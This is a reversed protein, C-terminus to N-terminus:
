DDLAYRGSFWKGAAPSPSTLGANANYNFGMYAHGAQGGEAVTAGEGSRPQRQLVFAAVSLETNQPGKQLISPSYEAGRYRAPQKPSGRRVITGSRSLAATSSSATNWESAYVPRELMDREVGDKRNVRKDVSLCKKMRRWSRTVFRRCKGEPENGRYIPQDMEWPRWFSKEDDVEADTSTSDQENREESDKPEDQQTENSGEGCEQDSRQDDIPHPEHHPSPRPFADHIFESLRHNSGDQLTREQRRQPVLPSIPKKRRLTRQPIFVPSAHEEDALTSSSSTNNEGRRFTFESVTPSGQGSFQHQSTSCAPSASRGRPELADRILTTSTASAVGISWDWTSPTQTSSNSFLNDGYPDYPTTRRGNSHTFTPRRQRSSRYIPISTQM